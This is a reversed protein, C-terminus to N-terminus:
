PLFSFPIRVCFNLPNDCSHEEHWLSECTPCNSTFPLVSQARQWPKSLHSFELNSWLVDRNLNSPAWAVTLQLSHWLGTIFSFPFYMSYIKASIEQARHWLYNLTRTERSGLRSYYFYIPVKSEPTAVEVRQNFSSIRSPLRIVRYCFRSKSNNVINMVTPERSGFFLAM